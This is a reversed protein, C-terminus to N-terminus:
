VPITQLFPTLSQPSAVQCPIDLSRHALPTDLGRITKIVPPRKRSVGQVGSGHRFFGAACGSIAYRSVDACAESPHFKM